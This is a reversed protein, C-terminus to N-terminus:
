REKLLEEIMDALLQAVTMRKTDAINQLQDIVSVPLAIIAFEGAQMQPERSLSYGKMM